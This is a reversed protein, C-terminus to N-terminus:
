WGLGVSAEAAAFPHPGRSGGLSAAMEGVSVGLDLHLFDLPQVTVAGRLAGSFALTAESASFTDTKVERTLRTAGVVLGGDLAVRAGLELSPGFGAELGYGRVSFPLLEGYGPAAGSGWLAAARVRGWAARWPWRRVGAALGVGLLGPLSDRRTASSLPWLAAAVPAVWGVAPRPLLDSLDVREGAALTVAGSYLQAGTSPDSLELRHAGPELVLGGPLTGKATGDVLVSLGEASPAYSFLVPLGARDVRGSLVIPDRGLVASEATPRQTGQSFLYTKQRAYDHAESATVAGDGDLDGRTLAELLFHTYVDHGLAESELATEGFACATLVVTAESVDDLAPLPAGKLAALKRALSDTLQSKGRGSHCLALVVAKRRAPIRDVAALVDAVPLGTQALLDLRTDRAVIVRELGGGPRQALSGHSSFYVVVTDRAGSAQTELAGLAELVAARSTQEPRTLVVVTDFGSLGRGLDEADAQAYRLSAFRSDEFAGIGVLLAFRRPARDTLGAPAVPTLAGSGKETDRPAHACGLWLWIWLGM